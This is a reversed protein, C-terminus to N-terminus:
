MNGSQIGRHANHRCNIETNEYLQKHPTAYASTETRMGPQHSECIRMQDEEDGVFYIQLFKAEDGCVTVDFSDRSLGPGTDYIHSNIQFCVHLGSWNHQVIDGPITQMPEYM